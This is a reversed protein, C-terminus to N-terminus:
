LNERLMKVSFRLKISVDHQACFAVIAKNMNYFGGQFWCIGQFDITPLHIEKQSLRHESANATRKLSHLGQFQGLPNHTALRTKEPSLCPHVGLGVYGTM